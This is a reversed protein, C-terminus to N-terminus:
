SGFCADSISSSKWSCWIRNRFSECSVARWSELGVRVLIQGLGLFGCYLVEWFLFCLGLCGRFLPKCVWIHPSRRPPGRPVGSSTGGGFRSVRPAALRRPLGRAVGCFRSRGCGSSSSAAELGNVLIRSQTFRADRAPFPTPPSTCTERRLRGRSRSSSDRRFVSPPSGGCAGM